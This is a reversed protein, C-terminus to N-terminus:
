PGKGHLQSEEAQKFADRWERFRALDQLPKTGNIVKALENLLSLRKDGDEKARNLNSSFNWDESRVGQLLLKAIDVLALPYRKPAHAYRTSLSKLYFHKRLTRYILQAIQSSVQTSTAVNRSFYKLM